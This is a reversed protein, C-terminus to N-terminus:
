KIEDWHAPGLNQMFQSLVGVAYATDLHSMVMPWLVSRIAECYPIGKMKNMQNLTSPCQKTLFQVHPDMPTLVKKMNTLRFKEMM